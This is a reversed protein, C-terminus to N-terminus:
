DMWIYIFQSLFTVICIYLYACLSKVILFFFFVRQLHFFFFNHNKKRPPTFLRSYNLTTLIKKRSLDRWTEVRISPASGDRLDFLSPSPTLEPVGKVLKQVMYITWGKKMKRKKKENKKTSAATDDDNRPRIFILENRRLRILTQFGYSKSHHM